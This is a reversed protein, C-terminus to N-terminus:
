RDLLVETVGEDNRSLESIAGNDVKICRFESIPQHQYYLILSRIVILHSVVVVVEGARQFFIKEIGSVARKQVQSITECGPINFKDPTSLWTPYENDFNSSIEEKTLGDWHPILIENFEPKLYVEAGTRDGIIEATQRTRALPGAYIANIGLENLRDAVGHVQDCGSQDLLEKTRGAFRNELNASTKGHRILFVTTVM